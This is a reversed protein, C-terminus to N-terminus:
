AGYKLAGEIRTIRINTPCKGIYGTGDENEDIRSSCICVGFRTEEGFMIADNWYFIEDEVVKGDVIRHRFIGAADSVDFKRTENRAFESEDVSAEPHSVCDTLRFSFNELHYIIDSPFYDMDYQVTVGPASYDSYKEKLELITNLALMTTIAEDFDNTLYRVSLYQNIEFYEQWNDLTIEITQKQPETGGTGDTGDTGDADQASAAPAVSAASAALQEQSGDADQASAASAASQEQSGDADTEGDKEGCAALSVCLVAALLLAIRRKM